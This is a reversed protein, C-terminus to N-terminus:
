CNKTSYARALQRHLRIREYEEKAKINHKKLVNLIATDADWDNIGIRMRKIFYSLPDMLKKSVKIDKVCVQHINAGKEL